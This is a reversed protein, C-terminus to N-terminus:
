IKLKKFRREIQAHSITRESGWFTDGSMPVLHSNQYVPSGAAEEKAPDIGVSRNLRVIKEFNSMENVEDDSQEGDPVAADRTIESSSARLVLSKLGIVLRRLTGSSREVYVSM